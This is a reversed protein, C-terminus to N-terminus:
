AHLLHVFGVMAAAGLVVVLGASLLAPLASRHRQRSERVPEVHYGSLLSYGTTQSFASPREDLPEVEWDFVQTDKYAPQKRSM